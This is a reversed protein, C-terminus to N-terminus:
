RDQGILMLLSKLIGINKKHFILEQGPTRKLYMLIKYVAKMHIELPQNMSQSVTSIIFSINPRTHALYILKGVLKQYREEDVTKECEISGLKMKPDMFMDAPKCGLMCTEKLLDM